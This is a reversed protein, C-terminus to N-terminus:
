LYYVYLRVGEDIKVFVHWHENKSHNWWILRIGCWQCKKKKKHLTKVANIIHEDCKYHKWRMQLTNMANIINEGCKYHKWRMQLTNMANTINEGCKYHKWRMQLCFTVYRSNYNLFSGVSSWTLTSQEAEKFQHFQEGDSILSEKRLNIRM